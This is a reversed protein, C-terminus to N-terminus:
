PGLLLRLDTMGSSRFIGKAMYSKRAYNTLFFVRGGLEGGFYQTTYRGKVREKVGM